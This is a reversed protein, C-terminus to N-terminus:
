SLKKSINLSEGFKSGESGNIVKLNRDNNTATLFVLAEMAFSSAFLYKKVKLCM